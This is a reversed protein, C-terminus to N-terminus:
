SLLLMAKEPTHFGDRGGGGGGGGDIMCLGLLGIPNQNFASIFGKMQFPSAFTDM